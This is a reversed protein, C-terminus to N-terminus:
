QCIPHWQIHHAHDRLWRHSQHWTTTHTHLLAWFAPGHNMHALHCLEHCIVDQLVSVPAMVLGWYVSVVGAATCSGWRSRTQSLRVRQPTLGVRQALTAVMPPIIAQATSQLQKKLGGIWPQSTDVRYTAQGLLPTAGAQHVIPVSEGHYLFWGGACLTHQLATEQRTAVKQQQTLIWTEHSAVWTQVTAMSVGYPVRAQVEGNPGVSLAMRRRRRHRTVHLTYPTM